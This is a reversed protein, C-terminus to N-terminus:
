AQKAFTCLHSRTWRDQLLCNKCRGSGRTNRVACQKGRQQCELCSEGREILTELDSCSRSGGFALKTLRVPRSHPQLSRLVACLRTQSSAKAQDRRATGSDLSIDTDTSKMIFYCPLVSRSRLCGDCRRTTDSTSTITCERGAKQCHTCSFGRQILSETLRRDVTQVITFPPSHNDSEM